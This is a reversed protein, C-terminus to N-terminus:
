GQVKVAANSDLPQWDRFTRIKLVDQDKLDERVEEIELDMWVAEGGYVDTDVLYADDDAHNSEGTNAVAVDMGAVRAITGNQVVDDGLDTSRTFDADSLLAEEGNPEIIALDPNYGSDRLARVGQLIDDYDLTGGNDGQNTQGTNSDLTSFAEHDLKERMKRGMKSTMYDMIAFINDMQAEDTIPVTHGYKTRTFTAKSFSEEDTPYSSGERVEQPEALNDDDTPIEWSSDTGDPVDFNIFARRYVLNEEVLEHVRDRIDTVSIADSTDFAM